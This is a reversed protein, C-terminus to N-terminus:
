FSVVKAVKKISAYSVLLVALLVSGSAYALGVGQDIGGYGVAFALALMYVTLSLVTSSVPVPELRYFRHYALELLFLLPLSLGSLTLAVGWLDFGPSHSCALVEVLFVASVVVSLHFRRSSVVVPVLSVSALSMAIVAASEWFVSVM